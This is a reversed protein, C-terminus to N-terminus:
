DVCGCSTIEMNPVSVMEIGGNRPDLIALLKPAMSYITCCPGGGLDHRKYFEQIKLKVLNEQLFPVPCVGVCYNPTFTPPYVIASLRLDNHFNVELHRICCHIVNPNNMCYQSNVVQRKKRRTRELQSAVEETVTAIVLQPQTDEFDSGDPTTLNNTVFEISPPSFLGSTTSFPCNIVLELELIENESHEIWEEIAKSVDFSDYEDESLEINKSSVFLREHEVGDKRTVHFVEVNEFIADNCTTM